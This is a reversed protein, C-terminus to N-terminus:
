PGGPIGPMVLGRSPGISQSPGTCDRSSAGSRNRLRTKSSEPTAGAKSPNGILPGNRERRRTLLGNRFPMIQQSTNPMVESLSSMRLLRWQISDPSDPAITTHTKNSHSFCLWLSMRLLDGSTFEAIGQGFGLSKRSCDARCLIRCLINNHRSMKEHVERNKPLQAQMTVDDGTGTHDTTGAGFHGTRTRHEKALSARELLPTITM